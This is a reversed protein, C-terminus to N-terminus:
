VEKTYYQNEILSLFYSCRRKVPKGEKQLDKASRVFNHYASRLFDAREIDYAGPMLRCLLDNISLMEDNTFEYKCESALFDLRESQYHHGKRDIEEWDYEWGAFSSEDPKGDEDSQEEPQIDGQDSIVNKDILKIRLAIVTKGSKIPEYDFSLLSKDDLEAKIKKLVKNNFRKYENYYATNEDQLIIKKLNSLEEEWETKFGRYKELYLYMMYTQYSKIDKVNNLRYKIYGIAEINFIYNIAQQSCELEVTWKGNEDLERTVEDFLAFTRVKGPRDIDPLEVPRFLNNIKEKLVENRIRDVGLLQEIEGKEFRVKKQQPNHSDICSLYADIIKFEMLSFDATKLALLPRSKQILGNADAKFSDSM